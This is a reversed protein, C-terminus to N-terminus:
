RHIDGSGTWPESPTVCFGEINYEPQAFRPALEDGEALALAGILMLALCLILGAFLKRNM